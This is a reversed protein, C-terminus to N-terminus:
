NKTNKLHRRKAYQIINQPTKVKATQRGVVFAIISVVPLILAITALNNGSPEKTELITFPQNSFTSIMQQPNAPDNVNVRIYCNPSWTNPVEWEYSITNTLNSAITIWPGETGNASYELNVTSQKNDSEINWVIIQNSGAEWATGENPSILTVVPTSAKTPATLTTPTPTLQQPTTTPNPTSTHTPITTPTPSPQSTPTPTPEPTSTPSVM